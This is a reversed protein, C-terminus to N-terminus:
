NARPAVLIRDLRKFGAMKVNYSLDENHTLKDTIDNFAQYVNINRGTFKLGQKKIPTIWDVEKLVTHPLRNILEQAQEDLLKEIRMQQYRKAIMEGAKLVEKVSDAFSKIDIQKSHIFVARTLITSDNFAKPDIDKIGIEVKIAGIHFKHFAYNKCIKRFTFGYTKLSSSGDISNGIGIGFRFFDDPEKTGATLNIEKPDILLTTISRDMDGMFEPITLPGKWEKPMDKAFILGHEEKIMQAVKFAEENPLVKYKETFHHVVKGNKIILQTNTPTGNRIIREATLNYEPFSDIIEGSFKADSKQLVPKVTNEVKATIQESKQM